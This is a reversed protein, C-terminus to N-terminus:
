LMPTTQQSIWWLGGIIGFVLTVDWVIALRRPMVFGEWM